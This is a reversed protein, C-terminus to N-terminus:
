GVKLFCFGITDEGRKRWTAAGDDGVRIQFFIEVTWVSEQAHEIDWSARKDRFGHESKSHGYFLKGLHEPIHSLTEQDSRWPILHSISYRGNLILHGLLCSRPSALNGVGKRAAYLGGIHTEDGWLDPAVITFKNAFAPMVKRWEHGAIQKM